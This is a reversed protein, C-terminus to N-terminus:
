ICEAERNVSWEGHAPDGEARLRTQLEECFCVLEPPLPEDWKAYPAAMQKLFGSPVTDKWQWRAQWYQEKAM